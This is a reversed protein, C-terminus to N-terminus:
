AAPETSASAWFNCKSDHEGCHGRDCNRCGAWIQIIRKVNDISSNIQNCKTIQIFIVLYDSFIKISIWSSRSIEMVLDTLEGGFWIKMMKTLKSTKIPNEIGKERMNNSFKDVLVMCWSLIEWIKWLFAAITLGLTITRWPKSNSIKAKKTKKLNIRSWICRKKPFHWCLSMKKLNIMSRQSKNTRSQPTSLPNSTLHSASQHKPKQFTSASLKTNNPSLGTRSTIAM